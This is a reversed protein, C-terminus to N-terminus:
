GISLEVQPEIVRRLADGVPSHVEVWDVIQRISAEDADTSLEINVRISLPGAPVDAVGLLGRDDSESDVTIRLNEIPVGVQAARMAIMTADCSALAARMMWGPTPAEGGGGVATPMDTLITVGPGETVVRLGNELVATATSDKGRAEEPHDRLYASAAEIAARISAEM